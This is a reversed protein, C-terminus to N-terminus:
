NHNGLLLAVIPNRVRDSDFWGLAIVIWDNALLDAHSPNWAQFSGDKMKLEIMAVSTDM